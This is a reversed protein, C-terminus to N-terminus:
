EGDGRGGRAMRRVVNRLTGPRGQSLVWRQRREPAGSAFQLVELFHGRGGHEIAVLWDDGDTGATVFRRMPLREDVVDTPNFPQGRDAIGQTGPRGAGLSEQLAPPIRSLSRVERFTHGQWEVTEGSRGCGCLGLFGALLMLAVPVRM